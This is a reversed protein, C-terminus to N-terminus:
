TPITHLRVLTQRLIYASKKDCVWIVYWKLQRVALGKTMEEQSPHPSEVDLYWVVENIHVQL